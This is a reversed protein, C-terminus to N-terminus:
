QAVHGADRECPIAAWIALILLQGYGILTLLQWYQYDDFSGAFHMLHAIIQGAYSSALMQGVAQRGSAKFVLVLSLTDTALFCATADTEGTLLVYSTNVVWNGAVIALCAFLPGNNAECVRYIGALTVALLLALYVTQM